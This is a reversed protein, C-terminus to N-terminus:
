FTAEDGIIMSQLFDDRRCRQILWEAFRLRRPLDGALLEHRVHMRYPHLRLDLRTIRNFGASSIAIPNRRASVHPDEELLDRVAAINEASRATRIRGSNRKNLNHSTGERSYKRVNKLISGKHPPNRDPFRIRFANQVETTNQVKEYQLVIFVRQETTLQVM